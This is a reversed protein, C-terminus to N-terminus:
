GNTKTAHRANTVEQAVEAYYVGAESTNRKLERSITSKPRNLAKAIKSRSEGLERRVQIYYREEKTLQEYTRM